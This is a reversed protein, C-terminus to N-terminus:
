MDAAATVALVSSPTEAHSLVPVGGWEIVLRRAAGSSLGLDEELRVGERPPPEKHSAGEPRPISQTHVDGGEPDRESDRLAVRELRFSGDDTMEDVRCADAETDGGGLDFRLVSPLERHETEGDHCGGGSV